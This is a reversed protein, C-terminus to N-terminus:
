RIVQDDLAPTFVLYGRGLILYGIVPVVLNMKCWLRKKWLVLPLRAHSYAMLNYICAPHYAQEILM